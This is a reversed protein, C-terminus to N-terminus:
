ITLGSPMAVQARSSTDDGDRAALRGSSGDISAWAAGFGLSCFLARAEIIPLTSSSLECGHVLKLGHLEREASVAREDM